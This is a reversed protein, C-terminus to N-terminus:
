DKCIKKFDKYNRIMGDASVALFDHTDAYCRLFSDSQVTESYHILNDALPRVENLFRDKDINMTYFNGKLRCAKTVEELDKDIDEDFSFNNLQWIAFM